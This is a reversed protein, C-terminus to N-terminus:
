GEILRRILALLGTETLSATLGVMAYPVIARWEKAAGEKKLVLIVAVSNVLTLVSFTAVAVLAGALPAAWVPHWEPPWGLLLAALGLGAALVAAAHRPQGLVPEDRAGPAVAYQVIPYLLTSLALGLGIGTVLRLANSPPYLPARGLILGAFSNSGDLAWALAACVLPLRVWGRPMGSLRGQGSAWLAVLGGVIGLFAGTCRACLPLAQGGIALSHDPIQHCVGSLFFRVVEPVV